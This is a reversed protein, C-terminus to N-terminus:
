AWIAYELRALRRELMAIHEAANEVPEPIMPMSTATCLVAAEMQAIRDDAVWLSPDDDLSFGDSDCLCTHFCDCVSGVAALEDQLMHIEVDHLMDDLAFADEAEVDPLITTDGV